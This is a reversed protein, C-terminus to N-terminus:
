AWQRFLEATRELSAIPYVEVNGNDLLVPGLLEAFDDESNVDDLVM